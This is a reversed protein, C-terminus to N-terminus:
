RSRSYFRLFSNSFKHFRGLTPEELAKDIIKIVSPVLDEIESEWYTLILDYRKRLEFLKKGQDPEDSSLIIRDQLEDIYRLLENHSKIRSYSFALKYQAEESLHSFSGSNLISRYAEEYFYANTYRIKKVTNSQRLSYSIKKTEDLLDKRNDKLEWLVTRYSRQITEIKQRRQDYVYLYLTFLIGAFIGIVGTVVQLIAYLLAPDEPSIAQASQGYIIDVSLPIFFLLGMILLIFLTISM